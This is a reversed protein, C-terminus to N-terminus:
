CAKRIARGVADIQEAIVVGTKGQGILPINLEHYIHIWFVNTVQFSLRMAWNELFNRFSAGQWLFLNTWSLCYYHRFFCLRGFYQKKWYCDVKFLTGFSFDWWLQTEAGSFCLKGSTCPMHVLVQWIWGHHKIAITVAIVVCYMNHLAALFSCLSFWRLSFAGDIGM